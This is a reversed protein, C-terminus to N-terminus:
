AASLSLEFQEHLVSGAGFSLKFKYLSQNIGTPGDTSSTGFSFLKASRAKAHEVACHLAPSDDPSNNDVLVLEFESGLKDGLCLELSRLCQETLARQGYTV